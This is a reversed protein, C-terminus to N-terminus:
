LKIMCWLCVFIAGTVEKWTLDRFLWDRLWILMVKGVVLFMVAWLMAAVLCVRLDFLAV